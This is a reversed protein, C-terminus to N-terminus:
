KLSIMEPPKRASLDVVKSDEIVEEDMMNKDPTELQVRKPKDTQPGTVTVENQASDQKKPIIYDMLMRTKNYLDIDLKEAPTVCQLKLCAIDHEIVLVVGSFFCQKNVFLKVEKHLESTDMFMYFGDRTIMCIKLQDAMPNNEYNFEGEMQPDIKFTFNHVKHEDRAIEHIKYMGDKTVFCHISGLVRVAVNNKQKVKLDSALDKIDYFRFFDRNINLMHTM